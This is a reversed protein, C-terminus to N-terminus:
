ILEVGLRDWVLDYAMTKKHLLIYIYILETDVAKLPPNLNREMPSLFHIKKRLPSMILM